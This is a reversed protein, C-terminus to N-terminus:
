RLERAVSLVEDTTLTGAVGTLVGDEVWVVGAMTSDRSTLLTAPSGDVDTTASTVLEAPVPLPLTTGDGTLERLQAALEAPLGPQSLLYDRVTSFPVGDSSVSPAVARAVVLAPLGSSSSWMQVAGPGAALQFRSGDLEAPPATGGAAVAREASFTFVATVPGGASIAPVGTVGAPLSAVEPISLGTAEEAAAVDAVPQVDPQQVVELDGYASLDPLRVLDADSVAVPTVQEARFIQLWDAAAAAGAGTLVLVVGLVAVTPSRLATRWRRVPAAAPARHTAAADVTVAFRRWALDVDPAAPTHLAAAAATADERATALGTLCVPCGAVHERDSDPVGAPEDLLRRLTGDTPHRM